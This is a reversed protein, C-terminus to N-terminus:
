AVRGLIAVFCSLEPGKIIVSWLSRPCSPTVMGEPGPWVVSPTSNLWMPGVYVCELVMTNEWVSERPKAEQIYPWFTLARIRTSQSPTVRRGKSLPLCNQVWRWISHAQLSGAVDKGKYETQIQSGRLGPASNVEAPNKEGRKVAGLM